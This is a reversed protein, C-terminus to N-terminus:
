SKLNSLLTEIDYHLTAQQLYPSIEYDLPKVKLGTRSVRPNLKPSKNNNDNNNDAGKEAAPEKSAL